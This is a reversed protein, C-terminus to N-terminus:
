KERYFPIMNLCDVLFVESTTSAKYIKIQVRDGKDKEESRAKAQKTIPASCATSHANHAVLV